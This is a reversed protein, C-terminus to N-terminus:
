QSTSSCPSPHANSNSSGMRARNMRKRRNPLLTPTPAIIQSKRCPSPYVLAKRREQTPTANPM